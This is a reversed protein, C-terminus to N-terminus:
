RSRGEAYTRRLRGTIAKEAAPKEASSERQASEAARIITATAHTTLTVKAKPALDLKEAYAADLSSLVRGEDTDIVAYAKRGFILLDRLTGTEHEKAPELTTRTQYASAVVDQVARTTLRDIEDLREQGPPMTMAAEFARQLDTKPQPAPAPKAIREAHEQRLLDQAEALEPNTVTIGLAVARKLMERQFADTGDLTITVGFKEAAFLLALDAADTDHASELHLLDGDDRFAVRNELSYVIENKGMESRLAHIRETLVTSEEPLAIPTRDHMTALLDQADRDGELSRLYDAFNLPPESGTLTRIVRIELNAAREREYRFRLADHTIASHTMWHKAPVDAREADIKAADIIARREQIYFHRAQQEPGLGLAAYGDIYDLYQEELRRRADPKEQAPRSAGITGSAFESDFTKQAASDRRNWPLTELLATPMPANRDLGNEEMTQHMVAARRDATRAHPSLEAYVSGTVFMPTHLLWASRYDYAHTTLKAALPAMAAARALTTTLADDRLETPLGSLIEDKISAVEAMDMQAALTRAENTRDSLDALYAPLDDYKITQLASRREDENMGHWSEIARAAEAAFAAHPHNPNAQDPLHRTDMADGRRLARIIRDAEPDGGKALNKLWHRFLHNPRQLALAHIAERTKTREEDNLREVIYVLVARRWQKEVRNWSANARIMLRTKHEEEANRELAADRAKRLRERADAARQKGGNKWADYEAMWRRYLPAIDPRRVRETPLAHRARQTGYGDTNLMISTARPEYAGLARELSSPQLLPSVSTAKVKVQHKASRDIFREGDYDLGFTAITEHFRHWSRNRSSLVNRAIEPMVTTRMWTQMSQQGTYVEQDTAKPSAKDGQVRAYEPELTKAAANLKNFDNYTSLGNFDTAHIRNILIHLHPNETDGHLAAIWQHDDAGVAQVLREAIEKARPISLSRAQCSAMLHYVPNRVRGTGQAVTENMQELIDREPDLNPSRFVAVAAEFREIYEKSREFSANRSKPRNFVKIIM